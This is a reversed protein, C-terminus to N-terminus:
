LLKAQNQLLELYRKLIRNRYDIPHFALFHPTIIERTLHRKMILLQLVKAFPEGLLFIWEWFSQKKKYLPDSLSLFAHPLIKQVWKNSEIFRNYTSKRDFLPKAQAIERATYIDDNDQFFSLGQTDMWLNLCIKNSPNKENRRRRLGKLTLFVMVVLRTIFLTNKRTVIFLDIDDDKRASGAALSGSLGILYITPIHSLLLAAKKARQEKNRIYPQMRKRKEIEENQDLFAYYGEKCVLYSASSLAKEFSAFPIKKDTIAYRYLEEKTLPFSFLSSYLLTKRIAKHNSDM